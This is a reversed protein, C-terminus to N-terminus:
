SKGCKIRSAYDMIGGRSHFEVYKGAEGDKSAEEINSAACYGM